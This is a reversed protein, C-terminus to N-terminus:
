GVFTTSRVPSCCMLRLRGQTKQDAIAAQEACFYINNFLVMRADFSVRACMIYKTAFYKIIEDEKFSM